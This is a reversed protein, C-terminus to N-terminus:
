KESPVGGAPLAGRAPAPTGYESGSSSVTVGRRLRSGETEKTSSVGILMEARKMQSSGDVNGM